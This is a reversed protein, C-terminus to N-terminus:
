PFAKPADKDPRRIFWFICSALILFLPIMLHESGIKRVYSFQASIDQIRLSTLSKDTFVLMRCIVGLPWGVVLAVSIHPLLGRGGLWQLLAQLPLGFILGPLLSFISPGIGSLIFGVPNMDPFRGNDAQWYALTTTVLITIPWALLNAAIGAGFSLGLKTTWNM